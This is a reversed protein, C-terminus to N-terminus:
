PSRGDSEIALRAGKDVENASKTDIPEGPRLDQLDRVLAVVEVDFDTRALELLVLRRDAELQLVVPRRFLQPLRAHLVVGEEPQHRRFRLLLRAQERAKARLVSVRAARVVFRAFRGDLTRRGIELAAQGSLTEGAAAHITPTQLSRPFSIVNIRQNTKNGASACCSFSRAAALSAPLSAFLRWM